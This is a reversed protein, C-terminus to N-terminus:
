DDDDLNVVRVPNNALAAGIDRRVTAEDPFKSQGLMNGPMTLQHRGTPDLVHVEILEVGDPNNRVIAIGWSGPAPIDSNM